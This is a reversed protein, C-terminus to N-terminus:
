ILCPKRADAVSYKRYYLLRPSVFISFYSILPQNHMLFYMFGSEVGCHNYQFAFMLFSICHGPTNFLM